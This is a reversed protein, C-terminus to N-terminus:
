IGLNCQGVVKWPDKPDDLIDKNMKYCKECLHQKPEGGSVSTTIYHAKNGCDCKIVDSTYPDTNIGAGEVEEFPPLKFLAECTTQMAVSARKSPDTLVTVCDSIEEFCGRQKIGGTELTKALNAQEIIADLLIRVNEANRNM